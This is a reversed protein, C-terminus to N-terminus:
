SIICCKSGRRNKTTISSSSSLYFQKKPIVSKISYVNKLTELDNNEILEISRELIRDYINEIFLNEKASVEIYEANYFNDDIFKHVDTKKVERKELNDCKNGVIIIPKEYEQTMSYTETLAEYQNIWDHVNKFSNFDTVDFVIVAMTSDKFYSSILSNFREQGATDWIQFKYTKTDRKITQTFFDVGITHDTMETYMNRHYRRLISSKGVGADGLFIIKCIFDPEDMM